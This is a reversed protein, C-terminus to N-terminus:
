GGLWREHWLEFVVLPWLARAHDARGSRHEALLQQVLRPQLVGRCAMRRPDLLRDVESRLEGNLWAAVPVSLGRKRRKVVATPLWRRAVEKLIWKTTWGRVKLRSHLGLAFRTVDRDLYPARTELSALMAARDLKVLLGDRLYTRYDLLMVDSLLDGSRAAVLPRHSSVWRERRASDPMGTGFWHIHRDFWDREAASVFRKLLFGTSVKRQSVPMADALGRIAARVPLPLTAFANALRHGLYTPYGGFLEDAGEGSLVVTVEDRARRALLYTPLVAPDAIPEAITDILTALAERLEHPGAQVVVHRLGLYRAVRAAPATEDYSPARFGVSFLRLPQPGLAEAAMAALLSSDVGGSTFIGVPVDAVLQKAVAHQLLSDLRRTAAPESCALDEVPPPPWYREVEDGEAAMVLVTGAPVKKIGAFMTKPELIYGVTLLDDLAEPDLAQSIGPHGLLAQIESAFWIEDQLRGYFLPKEGARDRALILRQQCVDWVVLAFMGDLQAIGPVGHHLVLPVIPEVDSRSRFPFERYRDRLRDANYIEGNCAVWFRGAPDRFPQDGLTRPDRVRLRRAGLVAQDSRLVGAGDPGRHRLLDGMGDLLHGERVPMNGFRVAGFIGCVIIARTPRKGRM